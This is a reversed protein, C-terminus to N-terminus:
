IGDSVFCLLKRRFHRGKFLDLSPPLTTMRGNDCNGDNCKNAGSGKRVVATDQVIPILESQGNLGQDSIALLQGNAAYLFLALDNANPNNGPGPGTIDMRISTRGGSGNFTFFDSSHLLDKRQTTLSDVTGTISQETSV